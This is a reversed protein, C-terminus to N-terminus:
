GSAKGNIESKPISKLGYVRGDAYSPQGSFRVDTSGYFGNSDLIGVRRDMEIYPSKRHEWAKLYQERASETIDPTADIRRIEQIKSYNYDELINELQSQIRDFERQGIKSVISKRHEDAAKQQGETLEGEPFLLRIDIYDENERSWERFEKWKKAKDSMSAKQAARIMEGKKDSYAKSYIEVYDGTRQGNHSQYLLDYKKDGKGSFFSESAKFKLDLEKILEDFENAAMRDAKFM